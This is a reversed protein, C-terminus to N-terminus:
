TAFRQPKRKLTCGPLRLIQTNSQNQGSILFSFRRGTADECAVSASTSDDEIGMRVAVAQEGVSMGSREAGRRRGDMAEM